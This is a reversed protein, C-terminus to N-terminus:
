DEMHICQSKKKIKYFIELQLNDLKILHFVLM